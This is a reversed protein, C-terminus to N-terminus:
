FAFDMHRLWKLNEEIKVKIYEILMHKQRADLRYSGPLCFLAKRIWPKWM